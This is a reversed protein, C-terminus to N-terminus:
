KWASIVQTAKDACDAPTTRRDIRMSSVAKNLPGLLIYAGCGIKVSRGRQGEDEFLTVDAYPNGVILKTINNNVLLPLKNLKSQQGLCRSDPMALFADRYDSVQAARGSDYKLACRDMPAREEPLVPVGLDAEREKPKKAPPMLIVERELQYSVAKDNCELPVAPVRGVFACPQGKQDREPYLRLVWGDAVVASSIANVYRGTFNGRPPSSPSCSSFGEYNSHEFVCLQGPKPNPPDGALVPSPAAAFAVASAIAPWLTRIMM